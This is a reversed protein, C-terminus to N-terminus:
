GTDPQVHAQEARLPHDHSIGPLQLCRRVTHGVIRLRQQRDTIQDEDIRHGGAAGPHHFPLLGLVEVAEGGIDGRDALDDPLPHRGLPAPTRRLEEGALGVAGGACCSQGFVQLALVAEIEVPQHQDGAHQVEARGVEFAASIARMRQIQREVRGGRVVVAFVTALRQPRHQGLRLGISRPVIRVDQGPPASQGSGFTGIRDAGDRPQGPEGLVIDITSIKPHLM